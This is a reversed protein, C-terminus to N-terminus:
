PTTCTSRVLASMSPAAQEVQVELPMAATASLELLQVQQVVQVAPTAAAVMAAVAATAPLRTATPLAAPLPMAAAPQEVLAALAAATRHPVATAVAVAQLM